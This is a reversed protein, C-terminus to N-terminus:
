GGGHGELREGDLAKVKRMLQALGDEAVRGLVNEERPARVPLSADQALAESAAEGLDHRRLRAGHAADPVAAADEGDAPRREDVGSGISAQV